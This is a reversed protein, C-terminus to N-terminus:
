RSVRAQVWEILHTWAIPAFARTELADRPTGAMELEHDANPVILLTHDRSEAADLAVEFISRHVEADVNLDFEGWM